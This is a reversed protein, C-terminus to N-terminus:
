AFNYDCVCVILSKPLLKYLPTSIDSIGLDRRQAVFLTTLQWGYCRNEKQKAFSQLINKFRNNSNDIVVCANLIILYM